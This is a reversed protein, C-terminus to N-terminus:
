LNPPSTVLTPLHLKYESPPLPPLQIHIPTTVIEERGDLTRVTAQLPHLGDQITIGSPWKYDNAAFDWTNCSDGGFACYPPEPTVHQHVQKGDPGLIRMEVQEIGAGDTSSIGASARVQFVLTNTVTSTLSNPGIQVIAAAIANPLVIQIKREITKSRGDLTYVTARLSHEGPQIAQGGPWKYQNAAFAWTNCVSGGFACYPTAPALYQHVENGDPGIIRM